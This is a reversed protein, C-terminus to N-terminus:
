QTRTFVDIVGAAHGPGFKTEANWGEIFRIEAVSSAPINKLSGLNGYEVDDLFVTPEKNVQLLLSNAGRSTLFNARLKVIADWASNAHSDEIEVRTLINRSPAPASWTNAGRCGSAVVITVLGAVLVNVSSRM